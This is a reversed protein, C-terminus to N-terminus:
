KRENQSKVKADIIRFADMCAMRQYDKMFPINDGVFSDFLGLWDSAKPKGDSSGHPFM